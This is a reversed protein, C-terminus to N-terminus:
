VAPKGGSSTKSEQQTSSKIRFQSVGAQRFQYQRSVPDFKGQPKMVDQKQAIEPPIQIVPPPPSPTEPIKTSGCM